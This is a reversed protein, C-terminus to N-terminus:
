PNSDEPAGAGGADDAPDTLQEFLWLRAFRLDRRVTRLSLDLALATEQESLGAFFRMHVVRARREDKQELIALAEDLALLEEPPAETAVQLNALDVRQWQGGRRLAAKSRADEVLIDRMARAAVFLYDRRTTVDDAQKGALRLWAENVLATPQLTKGPPLRALQARALQRLEDYVARLLREPAGAEGANAARLLETVRPEDADDM